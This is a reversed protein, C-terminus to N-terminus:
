KSSVRPVLDLMSKATTIIPHPIPRKAYFSHDYNGDQYMEGTYIVYPDLLEMLDGIGYYRGPVVDVGVSSLMEVCFEVCTYSDQVRVSRQFPVGFVSLHNYLYHEKDQYMRQLREKLADYQEQTVAVKCVKIYSNIGNLLFRSNSEWVFGGYFPTNCYRRAFSYMQTLNEDLAISAHNYFERTAARIMKSLFYPTSSFVVYIHRKDM